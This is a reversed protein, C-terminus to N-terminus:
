CFLGYASAPYYGPVWVFEYDVGASKLQRVLKPVAESIAPDDNQSMVVLAPPLNPSNIVKTIDFMIGPPSLPFIAAVPAKLGYAASLTSGGGASHGGISIRRTDVSYHKPM